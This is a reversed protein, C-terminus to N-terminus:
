LKLPDLCFEKRIDDSLKRQSLFNFSLNNENSSINDGTALIYAAGPFPLPSLSAGREDMVRRVKQHDIFFKYYGYGRNYEPPDPLNLHKVGLINATGSMTYFRRYKKYLQDGDERYKWGSKLYWGNAEPHENVFAALRNSVCDDADVAMVHTPSFQQAITMGKLIRRGKDTRFGNIRLREKEPPLFDVTVYSVAGHQFDIDPKENCVVITRFADSTQNCTAKLCREFLACTKRWDKSVKASKLPIIFTLM